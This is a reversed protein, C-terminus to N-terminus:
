GKPKLALGGRAVVAIRGRPRAPVDIPPGDEAVDGLQAVAAFRVETVGGQKDVVFFQAGENGEKVIRFLFRLAIRAVASIDQVKLRQQLVVIREKSAKHLMLSKRTTPAEPYRDDRFMESAIPEEADDGRRVVLTKHLREDILLQELMRLAQRLLDSEGASEAKELLFERDDAEADSLRINEKEWRLKDTM